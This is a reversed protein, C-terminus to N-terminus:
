GIRCNIQWTILMITAKDPNSEFNFIQCHLTLVYPLHALVTCHYLCGHTNINDHLLLLKSMKRTPHVQCFCANLKKTETGCDSNLTTGMCLYQVLYVGKEDKIGRTM